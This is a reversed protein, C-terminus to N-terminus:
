RPDSCIHNLVSIVQHLRKSIWFIMAAAVLSAISLVILAFRNKAEGWIVLFSMAVFPIITSLFQYFTVLAALRQINKREQKGLPETITARILQPQWAGLCFYTIGFFVYCAAVIGALFHSGIFDFWANATLNVFQQRLALPYLWGAVMWFPFCVCAGWHGLLLNQSRAKLIREAAEHSRVTNNPTGDEKHVQFRIVSRIASAIPLIRYLVLATATPFAISNIISQTQWFVPRGTSPVSEIDNYAFVFAAALANPVILLCLVIATVFVGIYPKAFISPATLFSEIEPQAAWHLQRAVDKAKQFRAEVAPKLCRLITDKLLEPVDGQIGIMESREIPLGEMRREAMEPLATRWDTAVHEEGYPRKGTLLEFLLVGLSFIDSRGDLADPSRDHNPDCAELQEPSMYALSGGLFTWPTAGEVEGSFSVNFDVLKATGDAALLVNALKIDRHLVGRDHAYDLASALQEGIRCVVSPWSMTQLRERVPSGLAADEGRDTLNRDVIEVFKAGSWLARPEITLIDLARHLSGGRLYQMYMLRINQDPIRRQDYVRVINPHDLQALTQPELGQDASIKLAVLRQMSNQRALFVTAFTGSGLRLLLDFDDITQGAEFKAPCRAMTISTTAGNDRGGVMREFAAAATPFRSSYDEPAVSRNARHRIQYDEYVLDPTVREVPMLDPWQAVYSELSPLPDNRKARAALDVKVLEVLVHFRNTEGADTLFDDINPPPPAANWAQSFREAITAIRDVILESSSLSITETTAPDHPM